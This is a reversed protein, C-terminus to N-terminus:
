GCRRAAIELLMQLEDEIGRLSVPMGFEEVMLTIGEAVPAFAECPQDHELEYFLRMHAYKLMLARADRPREENAIAMAERFAERAKEMNHAVGTAGYAQARFFAADARDIVTRMEDAIDEAIVLADDTRGEQILEHGLTQKEWTYLFDPNELHYAYLEDILRQRFGRRAERLASVVDSKGEVGLEFERANLKELETLLARAELDAQKAENIWRMWVADYFSLVGVATALPIGFNTLGSFIRQPLTKKAGDELRTIRRELSAIISSESETDAPKPTQTDNSPQPTEDSAM